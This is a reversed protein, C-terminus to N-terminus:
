SSVLDNALTAKEAARAKALNGCYCRQIHTLPQLCTKVAKKRGFKLKAKVLLRQEKLLQEFAICDMGDINQATTLKWFMRAVTRVHLGNNYGSIRAYIDMRAALDIPKEYVVLASLIAQADAIAKLDDAQMEKTYTADSM